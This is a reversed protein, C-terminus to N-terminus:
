QTHKTFPFFRLLRYVDQLTDAGSPGSRQFPEVQKNPGSVSEVSVNLQYRRRFSMVFM